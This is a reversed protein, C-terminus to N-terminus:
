FIISLVSYYLKLIAKVNIMRAICSNPCKNTQSTTMFYPIKNLFNYALKKSIINFNISKFKLKM